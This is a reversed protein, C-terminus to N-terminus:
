FFSHLGNWGELKKNTVDMDSFVTARSWHNPVDGWFFVHMHLFMGVFIAGKWAQVLGNEQPFNPHSVSGLNLMSGSFSLKWFSDEIGPNGNEPESLNWTLSQSPILHFTVLLFCWLNWTGSVDRFSVAFAGSFLSEWISLLIGVM